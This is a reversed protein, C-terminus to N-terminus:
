APALAAEPAESLLRRLEAVRDAALAAAGRDIARPLEAEARDLEAGAAAADGRAWAAAARALHRIHQDILLGGEGAEALACARGADGVHRAVFYVASLRLAPRLLPPLGDQAELLAEVHAGAEDLAGRDQAHSFAFQLGMVHFPTGDAAGVARRVLEPDWDRPRAGGLTSGTLLLLAVERDMEPGGRWMRVLRAGDSYFGATRTPTLSIAAAFLNGFGLVALVTKAAVAAFSSEASLPPLAAWLSVFAAGALLSAVPGGAVMAATRRLLAHSGVPICAALGGAMATRRSASVRWGGDRKQWRLPGVMLLMPEFGALKGAAMHGIEHWLVVLPLVLMSVLVLGALEPGSLALHGPDLIRWHAALVGVAAGLVMFLCFLAAQGRTIRVAPRKTNSM